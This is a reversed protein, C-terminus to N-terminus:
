ATRAADIADVLPKTVPYQDCFPKWLGTRMQATISKREEPAIPTFTVGSRKLEEVLSQSMEGAQKRHAATADDAAKLIAPRLDAPIKNMSPRGIYVCLAMYEHETLFCYKTLENLKVDITTGNDLEFGDVVGTQVATYLDNLPVPTPVAGMIKFADIFARTSFVRLKKDKVDALSKISMKSFIHRPSPHFTWALTSVGTRDYLIKAAATAVGSDLAHAEHEWSEFLFCLDFVSIEPCMGAWVGSNMIMMDIAGLKVNQAADTENGLIGNPFYNLKIRDGVATQLNAKFKEYWLYHISKEDASQNSYVKLEIPGAANAPRSALSSAGIAATTGSILLSRRSMVNM